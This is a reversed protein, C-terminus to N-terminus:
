NSGVAVVHGRTRFYIVGDAIAPTSMHTEGLDIVTLKEFTTGPRIIHVQGEESTFYLKGDGAVPSSTFGARGEGLRERYHQEGTQADYCSLIGADSCFYALGKYIIPTQMYNGRRSYAWAIHRNGAGDAPAELTGEADTLIAYIPAMRGHANTIYILDGAVVPTPVPIDGGGVLKWLERGDALDYGGIHKWGNCIVQTRSVGVHITPTSWTPEEQRPTRWVEEGTALLDLAAVFSGEQVDCQVIVKDEFIVPSSAFGWQADPMMFFGSDLTGFDRSWKLEGEATYCYLGESGFFAVVHRGDTAPTSAAHSGKPHRKIEPVGEWATREWLIAGDARNLCLIKFRHVSDDKVPQVDGYLGVKLEAEGEKTATTLYIRDGYIVPSSHALGDIPTKWLINEGTAVNWSDPLPHSDDYGRAFPGRFSPWNASSQEKDDTNTPTTDPNAADNAPAVPEAREIRGFMQGGHDGGSWTGAYEGRFVLVRATFRGMGPVLYDTLTIVPTDGAWKVALILPVTVDNDGYQIRAEFRWLDDSDPLKEVKGLTYRDKSLPADAKQDRTTFYGVLQAHSMTAAFDRELQERDPQTAPATAPGDQRAAAPHCLAALPVTAAFAILLAFRGFRNM